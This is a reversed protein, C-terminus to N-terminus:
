RDEAFAALIDFVSRLRDNGDVRVPFVRQQEVSIPSLNRFESALASSDGISRFQSSSRRVAIFFDPPSARLESGLRSNNEIEFRTINFEDTFSSNVAIEQRPVLLGSERAVFNDTDSGRIFRVLCNNHALLGQKGVFYVHEGWVEV